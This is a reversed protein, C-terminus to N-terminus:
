ANGAGSSSRDDLYKELEAREFHRRLRRVQYQLTTRPVGLQRAVQALTDWRLREALERLEPPLRRLVEAVDHALEAQEDAPRGGKGSRRRHAEELDLAEEKRLLLDLSRQRRHDRPGAHARRLFDTLFNDVLRALFPLRTGPRWGGAPVRQHVAALLEQELDERERHAFPAKGVLKQVKSRILARVDPDLAPSQDDRSV